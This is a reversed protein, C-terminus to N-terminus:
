QIKPFDVVVGSNFRQNFVNKRDEEPAQLNWGSKAVMVQVIVM